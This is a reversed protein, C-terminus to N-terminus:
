RDALRLQPKSQVGAISCATNEPEFFMPFLAICGLRSPHRKEINLWDRAAPQDCVNPAVDLAVFMPLVVLFPLSIAQYTDMEALQM